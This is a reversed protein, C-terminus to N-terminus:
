IENKVRAKGNLSVGREDFCNHTTKLNRTEVIVITFRCKEVKDETEERKRKRMFKLLIESLKARTRRTEM